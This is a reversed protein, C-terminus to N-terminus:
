PLDTGLASTRKFSVLLFYYEAGLRSFMNRLEPPPAGGSARRNGQRRPAQLRDRRGDTDEASPARRRSDTGGLLTAQRGWRRSCTSFRLARSLAIKLVVALVFGNFGLVIRLLLLRAGEGLEGDHGACAVLDFPVMMLKIKPTCRVLHIETYLADGDGEEESKRGMGERRKGHKGEGRAMKGVQGADRGRRVAHESVRLLLTLHVRSKKTRHGSLTRCLNPSNPQNEGLTRTTKRENIRAERQGAKKGGNGTAKDNGATGRRTTRKAGQKGRGENPKMSWSQKLRESRSECALAPCHTNPTPTPLTRLSDYARLNKAM